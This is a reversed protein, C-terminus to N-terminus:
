ADTILTNDVFACKTSKVEVEFTESPFENITSLANITVQTGTITFLGTYTSNLAQYSLHTGNGIRILDYTLSTPSVINTSIDFTKPLDTIDYDYSM